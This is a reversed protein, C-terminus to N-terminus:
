FPSVIVTLSSGSALGAGEVDDAGATLDLADQAHSRTWPHMTCAPWCADHAFPGTSRADSYFYARTQQNFYFGDIWHMRGPSM